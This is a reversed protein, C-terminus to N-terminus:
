TSCMFLPPTVKLVCQVSSTNCIFAKKYPGVFEAQHVKKGTPFLKLPETEIYCQM